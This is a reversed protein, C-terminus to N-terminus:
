PKTKLHLHFKFINWICLHFQTIGLQIRISYRYFIIICTFLTNYFQPQVYIILFCNRLLMISSNKYKMKKFILHFFKIRYRRGNWRFFFFIFKLKKYYNLLQIGISWNKHKRSSNLFINVNIILISILKCISNSM